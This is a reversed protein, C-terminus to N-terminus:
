LRRSSGLAKQSLGRLSELLSIAIEDGRTLTWTRCDMHTRRIHRIAHDLIEIPNM